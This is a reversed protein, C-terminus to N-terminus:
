WEGRNPLFWIVSPGVNAAQPKQEPELVLSSRPLSPYAMARGSTEEKGNVRMSSRSEVVRAVSSIVCGWVEAIWKRLMLVLFVGPFKRYGLGSRGWGQLAGLGWNLACDYIRGFVSIITWIEM